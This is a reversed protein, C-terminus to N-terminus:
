FARFYVGIRMDILELELWTWILGLMLLDIKLYPLKMYLVSESYM